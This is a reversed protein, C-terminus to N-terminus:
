ISSQNIAWDHQSSTAHVTFFRRSPDTHMCHRLATSWQISTSSHDERHRWTVHSRRQPLCFVTVPTGSIRVGDTCRQSAASGHGAWDRTRRDNGTILRYRPARRRSETLAMDCATVWHSVILRTLDKVRKADSIPM